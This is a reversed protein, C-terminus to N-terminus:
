RVFKSICETTRKKGQEFCLNNILIFHVYIQFFFLVDFSEIEHVTYRVAGESMKFMAEKASGSGEHRWFSRGRLLFLPSSTRVSARGEEGSLSCNEDERRGESEIL